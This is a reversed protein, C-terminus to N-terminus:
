IVLDFLIGGKTNLDFRLNSVGNGSGPQSVSPCPPGSWPERASSSMRALFPAPTCSPAPRWWRPPTLPRPGTCSAGATTGRSSSGRLLLRM